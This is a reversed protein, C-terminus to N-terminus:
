FAIPFDDDRLESSVKILSNGAAVPLKVFNIFLEIGFSVAEYRSIIKNTLKRREIFKVLFRLVVMSLSNKIRLNFGREEFYDNLQQFPESDDLLTSSLNSENLGPLSKLMQVTPFLSDNTQSIQLFKILIIVKLNSLLRQLKQEMSESSPVM